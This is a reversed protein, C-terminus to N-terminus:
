DVTLSNGKSMNLMVDAERLLLQILTKPWLIISQTRRRAAGGSGPTPRHLFHTTM